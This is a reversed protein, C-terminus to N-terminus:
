RGRKWPLPNIEARGADTDVALRFIEGNDKALLIADGDAWVGALSPLTALTQVRKPSSAEMSISAAGFDTAVLLHDRYPLIGVVRNSPLGDAVTFHTWQDADNIWLGDAFTGALLRANDAVVCNIGALRQADPKIEKFKSGDFELLGGAFTGVLLRGPAETLTTVAQAKRDTWRYREFRKGDFAILGQSRTGIYLKSAFSALASLDSEPLGDLTTFRRKPTGDDALELLGGDTAAFLADNFRALDRVQRRSQLLTVGAVVLPRRTEKDFPVFAQRELLARAAEFERDARRRITWAAVGGIFVISIIIGAALRRNMRWKSKFEVPALSAAFQSFSWKM